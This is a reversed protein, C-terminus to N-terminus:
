ANFLARRVCMFAKELETKAISGWRNGPMLDLLMKEADNAKEIETKNVAEPKPSYGDLFATRPSVSVYGDAYIVLFDGKTPTYRDFVSAKHVASRGGVFTVEYGGPVPCYRAIEYAEVEKHSVYRNSKSPKFEPASAPIYRSHFAAATMFGEGDVYWCGAAIPVPRTMSRIFSSCYDLDIHTGDDFKIRYQSGQVNTLAVVEAVRHATVTKGSFKDTYNM